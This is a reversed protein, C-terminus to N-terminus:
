DEISVLLHEHRLTVGSKVYVHCCLGIEGRVIISSPCPLHFGAQFTTSNQDSVASQSCIGSVGNTISRQLRVYVVAATSNWIPFSESHDTHRVRDWQCHLM